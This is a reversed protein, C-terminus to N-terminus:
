RLWILREGFERGDARFRVFYIGAGIRGGGEGEGNWRIAHWGAEHVGSALTKVRRGQVDFLELKVDARQPLGFTMSAAGRAPNAGTLAFQLTLPAPRVDTAGYITFPGSMALVGLVDDDVSYEPDVQELPVDEEEVFVMAVRVSDAHIGPVNWTYVGDNPQKEAILTWNAGHDLSYLLSVWKIDDGVASTDWEIDYLTLPGVLEGALPKKVTGHKVRITDCGYFLRSGLRGEVCVSVQNGPPLLLHVDVRPFKVRLDATGDQDHDGLDADSDAPVVGNLRISSVVLSEALFPAYPEITGKVWHGMSRVNVTRPNFRFDVEVRPLADPSGLAHVVGTGENAVWLRSRGLPDPAMGAPMGGLDFTEIRTLSVPPGPLSVSGNGGAGSGIRFVIVEGDSTSVYALSGDSSIVVATAGSGCNATAVVQNANPGSLAVVVLQGSDTLVFAVTGDSSIVVATAASGCNVTATVADSALDIIQLGATVAVYATSGDSSIVVATAGSGCNATKTVQDYTANGPNADIISITSSGANLVFVQRGAPWVTVDVPAAGVPITEVVQHYDPSAPDVDLVSVSNSGQNAVYARQPVPLVAISVPTLGVTISTLTQAAVLDLVNVTNLPPNTIYARGGDPSLAIDRSGQGAPLDGIVGGPDPNIPLVIFNVGPSTQGGSTVTVPGSTAVQPVQLTIGTLSATEVSGITGNFLVTNLAALPSFGEGSLTVAAGAPGAPPVIADVHVVPAPQITFVSSAGSAVAQGDLDLAGPLVSLSCSAVFPLPERPQFVVFRGQDVLNYDGVVPQGNAFLTITQTVAPAMRQNFRVGVPTGAGLGTSGNLPSLAVIQPLIEADDLVVTANATVFSPGPGLVEAHLQVPGPAAPLTWFVEAEGNVDTAIVDIQRGSPLTGQNGFIEFQVLTGQAPAGTDTTVRVRVPIPLTSFAAGSQGDGCVLTLTAAEGLKFLHLIGDTASSGANGPEALWLQRGDASAALSTTAIPGHGAPRVTVAPPIVSLDFSMLHNSFQSHSIVTQGDPGPVLDFPSMNTIGALEDPIGFYLEQGIPGASPDLNWVAIRRPAPLDNRRGYVGMARRGDRTVSVSFFSSDVAVPPGHPPSQAIVTFTNLDVFWASVNGGAVLTRGDGTAALSWPEIAPLAAFLSDTEWEWFLLGDGAFPTGSAMWRGLPDALVAYGTGVQTSGIVTRLDGFDPSTPDTNTVRIGLQSSVSWLEKGDPTFAADFVSEGTGSSLTLFGKGMLSGFPGSGDTATRHLDLQIACHNERVVAMMRGDPSLRVHRLYGGVTTGGSEACSTDEEPIVFMSVPEFDEIPDVITFPLALSRLAGPQELVVSAERATLAPVRFGAGRGVANSAPFPAGSGLDVQTPANFGSGPEGQAGILQSAIARDPVVRVLSPVGSQTVLYLSLDQSGRNAVAVLGGGADVAVAVPGSGAAVDTVIPGAFARLSLGLNLVQLRNLFSNVIYVAQGQPTYQVDRAFGGTFIASGDAPVVGVSGAAYLGRSDTPSVTVSVMGGSGQPSPVLGDFPLYYGGATSGVVLRQNDPTVALGTPPGPPFALARLQSHETLSGPKIDLEHIVGSAEDGAYARWGTRAVALAGPRGVLPIRTIETGLNASSPNADFVVVSSDEPLTVFARTGDPSLAIARAPRPDRPVAVRIPGGATASINVTVFGGDGVVYAMSGDPALAVDTPAFGVPVPAGSPSPSPQEAPPLINFVFGNSRNGEDDVVVHISDAGPAEGSPVRVVMTTPTVFTGPVSDPPSGGQLFVAKNIGFPGASFGTGSITILSGPAVDRPQVNAISLAPQDQTTFTSTFEAALPVGAQDTLETTLQIVYETSFALPDNSTFVVRRGRDAVLANGALRQNPNLAPYVGFAASLTGTNIPDSFTLQISADIGIGTSAAPPSVSVVGPPLTDLNTVVQIGTLETGAAVVLPDLLARDDFASETANHFESEFPFGTVSALRASVFGAVMGDLVSGDLAQVHIGYSGPPLRFIAFTGDEDTFDCAVTDVVASDGELRVATVLAGGVPLGTTDRVVSGRIAGFASLLDAAPYAAAIASQDDADLSAGEAGPLQVFYMTADRVGSHDLGLLHGVEHTAVSRLDFAGAQQPTAFSADANFLIDKDVITGPLVVRDGYATRRTLELTATVALVEPSFPFREDRLSLINVGDFPSGNQVPTPNLKLLPVDAGAVNQWAAFASDFQAFAGAVVSSSGESYQYRITQGAPWTEVHRFTATADICGDGDADQGAACEPCADAIDPVGDFDSDAGLEYVRIDDLYPLRTGLPQADPGLLEERRDQVGMVIQISDCEFPERARTRFFDDPFRMVHETLFPSSLDGGSAGGNLLFAPFFYTSPRTEGANKGRVRMDLVRGQTFTNLKGSFALLLRLTRDNRAIWPSTIRAHLGAPVSDGPSTFVWACSPDAFDFGAELRPLTGPLTERPTFGSVKTYSNAGNVASLTWGDLTGDEFDEFPILDAAGDRLALNDVIAAGGGGGSALPSDENSSSMSTQVVIRFRTPSAIGALSQDALRVEVPFTGVPSPLELNSTAAVMPMVISPMLTAWSGDARLAQVAFFDTDFGFGVSEITELTSTVAMESALDFSLVANPHLTIDVPPSTVRQSWGNGYGTPSLWNAVEDPATTMDAGVRLARRGMSISLRDGAVYDLMSASSLRLVLQGATFFVGGMGDACMGGIDGLPAQLGHNALVEPGYFTTAGAVRQLIGGNLKFIAAPAGTFAPGFASVYITSGSRAMQNASALTARDAAGTLVTNQLTVLDLRHLSADTDSVYFIESGDPNVAVLRPLDHNLTIVRLDNRRIMRLRNGSEAFYINGANDVSMHTATIEANALTTDNGSGISTGHNAFVQAATDGPALYLVLSNAADAIFIGGTSPDSTMARPRYGAVGENTYRRLLNDAPYVEYLVRGCPPICGVDYFVVRGSDNLALQGAQGIATGLIPATQVDLLEPRTRGGLFGRNVVYQETLHSFVRATLDEGTWARTACDGNLEQFGHSLSLFTDTQTVTGNWLSQRPGAVKSLSPLTRADRVPTAPAASAPAAPTVLLAAALLLLAAHFPVLAAIAERRTPCTTTPETM